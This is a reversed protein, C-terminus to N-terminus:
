HECEGCQCYQFAIEDLEDQVSKRSINYYSGNCRIITDDEDWYGLKKMGRVSGSVDINPHASHESGSQGNEIWAIGTRDDRYLEVYPAVEKIFRKSV